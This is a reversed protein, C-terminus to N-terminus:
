PLRQKMIESAESACALFIASTIIRDIGQTFLLGISLLIRHTTIKNLSQREQNQDDSSQESKADIEIVRVSRRCAPMAAVHGVAELRIVTALNRTTVLLCWM